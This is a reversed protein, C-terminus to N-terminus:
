EGQKMFVEIEQAHRGEPYQTEYQKFYTQAEAKRNLEFLCRGANFLATEHKNTKPYDKLVTSYHALAVEPQHLRYSYINAVHMLVEAKVEDKTSLDRAILLATEADYYQKKDLLYSAYNIIWRSLIEDLQEHARLSPPVDLSTIEQLKKRAAALGDAKNLDHAEFPRRNQYAATATAPKLAVAGDGATVLIAGEDLFIFSSNSRATMTFDTGRIGITAAPTAVPMPIELKQVVARMSGKLLDLGLSDQGGTLESSLNLTTEEALSLESGNELIILAKAQSGTRVTDDLFLPGLAAETFDPVGARRIEVDGTLQKLTGVQVAAHASVPALLLVLLPLLSAAWGYAHKHRPM